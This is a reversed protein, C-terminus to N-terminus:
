LEMLNKKNAILFHNNRDGFYYNVDKAILVDQKLALNLRRYGNSISNVTTISSVSSSMDYAGRKKVDVLRLIQRIALKAPGKEEVLKIYGKDWFFSDADITIWKILEENAVALTDGKPDIFQIEDLLRHYNLLAASKDGSKFFVMGKKFQPYQYLEEAPISESISSGAKVLYSNSTQAFSLSSCLLLLLLFSCAKM